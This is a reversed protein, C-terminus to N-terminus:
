RAARGCRHPSRIIAVTNSESGDMDDHGPKDRGDVDKVADLFCSTSARCLAPCSADIIGVRQYSRRSDARPCAAAYLRHATGCGAFASASDRVCRNDVSQVQRPRCTPTLLARASAALTILRYLRYKIDVGDHGPKDRGDVDKSCLSFLVHIGPVLGPM